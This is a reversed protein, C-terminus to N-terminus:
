RDERHRTFQLRCNFCFLQNDRSVRVTWRNACRPCRHEQINITNMGALMSRRGASAWVAPGRIAWPEEVIRVHL